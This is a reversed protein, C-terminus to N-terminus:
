CSKVNRPTDSNNIPLDNVKTVNNIIVRSPDGFFKGDNEPPSPKDSANAISNQYTKSDPSTVGSKHHPDSVPSTTM